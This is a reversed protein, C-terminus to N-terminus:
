GQKRLVAQPVFSMPIGKQLLQDLVRLNIEQHVDRYKRYDAHLVFYIVEFIFGRDGYEKFHASDFRTDAIGCIMSEVLGPVLRLMEVSADPSIVFSFTVRRETMRKFNRIRSSTLDSNSIVIQEGSVSRLRTSKIGINEVTGQVDGVTIFDGTVFPEDFMVVFYNFIDGLISQTALAVAVGGIGLGAVIAAVNFGLNGLVFVTAIGWIVWRLIGLMKRALHESFGSREAAKSYLIFSRLVLWLGHTAVLTMVVLYVARIWYDVAAPLVLLQLCFCLLFFPYFPLLWRDAIEFLARQFSSSKESLKEKWVKWYKKQIIKILIRAVAYGILIEFYTALSNNWVVLDLADLFSKM